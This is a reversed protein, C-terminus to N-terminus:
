MDRSNEDLLHSDTHPFFSGSHVKKTFNDIIRSILQDAKDMDTNASAKIIQLARTLFRVKVLDPGNVASMMADSSMM